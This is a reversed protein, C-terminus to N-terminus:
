GLQNLPLYNLYPKTEMAGKVWRVLTVIKTLISNELVKLYLYELAVGGVGM